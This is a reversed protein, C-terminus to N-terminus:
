LVTIESAVKNDIENDPGKDKVWVKVKQHSTLESFKEISGNIETKDDILIEYTPYQAEPDVDEAATGVIISEEKIEFIIGEYHAGSEKSCGLTSLLIVMSVLVLFKKMM